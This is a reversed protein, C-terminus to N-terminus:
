KDRYILEDVREQYLGVTKMEVLGQKNIFFCTPTAQAGYLIKVPTHDQLFDSVLLYDCPYTKRVGKLSELDSNLCYVVIEFNNRSTERYLSDLYARGGERMCGLGGYLLLVNKGELSSLVFKEGESTIAEFDYYRDGEKIQESNIHFSISKGYPSNKMDDPLSSLISQLSDKPLGLRVMYLRQLGSPVSAFKIALERNKQQALDLIDDSAKILSDKKEPYKKFIESIREMDIEYQEWFEKDLKLYNEETIKQAFSVVSFHLFLSIFILNKVRFVIKINGKKTKM